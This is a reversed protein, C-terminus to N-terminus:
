YIDRVILVTIEISWEGGGRFRECENDIYDEYDDEKMREIQRQNFAKIWDEIEKKNMTKSM